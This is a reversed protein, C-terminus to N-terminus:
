KKKEKKGEKENILYKIIGNGGRHMNTVWEKANNKTNTRFVVMHM